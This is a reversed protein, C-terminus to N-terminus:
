KGERIASKLGEFKKSLIQVSANYMIQNEALRGMETELEVANGDNGPTRAPTEIVKGTVAEVKGALGKLPIHRPNTLTPAGKNEGKVASQLEEEFSLSKPIYKPTEANALNASLLNQQRVRLDISKDLITITSSFLGDVPM